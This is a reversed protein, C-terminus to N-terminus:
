KQKVIGGPVQLVRLRCLLCLLSDSDECVLHSSQLFFGLGATVQVGFLMSDLCTGRSDCGLRSPIKRQMRGYKFMLSKENNLLNTKQKVIGGPVQLSTYGAQPWKWEQQGAWPLYYNAQKDTTLLQKNSAIVIVLYLFYHIVEMHGILFSGM